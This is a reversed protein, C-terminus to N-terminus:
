DEVKGQSVISLQMSEEKVERESCKPDNKKSAKGSSVCVKRVCVRFCELVSCIFVVVGVVHSVM